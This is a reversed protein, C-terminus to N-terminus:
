RHGQRNLCPRRTREPRATRQRCRWPMPHASPSCRKCEPFGHYRGHGRSVRSGRHGHWEGSGWRSLHKERRAPLRRSRSATSAAPFRCSSGPRRSKGVLWCNRRIVTEAVNRPYGNVADPKRNKAKIRGPQSFAADLVMRLEQKTLPLNQVGEPKSLITAVRRVDNHRHGMMGEMKKLVEIAVDHLCADVAATM